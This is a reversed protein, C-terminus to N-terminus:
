YNIKLQKSYSLRELDGKGILFTKEVLNLIKKTARKIEAHSYNGKETLFTSELFVLAKARGEEMALYNINDTKFNYGIIGLVSTIYGMRAEPDSRPLGMAYYFPGLEKKREQYEQIEKRSWKQKSFINKITHIYYPDLEWNVIAQYEGVEKESWPQLVPPRGEEDFEIIKERM